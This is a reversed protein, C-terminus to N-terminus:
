EDGVDNGEEAHQEVDEAQALKRLDLVRRKAAIGAFVASLAQGAAGADNTALLVIRKAPMHAVVHLTAGQRESEAFAMQDTNIVAGGSASIVWM